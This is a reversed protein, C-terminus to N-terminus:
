MTHQGAWWMRWADIAQRRREPPDRSNFGFSEGSIGRLAQAAHDAVTAGFDITTPLSTPLNAEALRDPRSQLFRQVGRQLAPLVTVARDDELLELLRPVAQMSGMVHACEVAQVLVPVSEAKSLKATVLDAAESSGVRQLAILAACVTLEDRDSLMSELVPLAQEGQWRALGLAATCRVDEDRDRMAKLLYPQVQPCRARNLVDVALLRLTQDPHDLLAGVPVVAHDAHAALANVYSLRAAPETTHQLKWTWWRVRIPTRFVLLATWAALLVLVAIITGPNARLQRAFRKAGSTKLASM